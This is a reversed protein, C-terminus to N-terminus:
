DSTATIAQRSRAVSTTQGGGELPGIRLAPDGWERERPDLVAIGGGGVDVDQVWIRNCVKEFTITARVTNGYFDTM